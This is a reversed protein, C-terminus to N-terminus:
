KCSLMTGWEMIPFFTNNYFAVYDLFDLIKNFIILRLKLFYSHTAIKHKVITDWTTLFLCFCFSTLIWLVHPIWNTSRQRKQNKIVWVHICLQWVCNKKERAIGTYWKTGHFFGSILLFSGAVNTTFIYLYVNYLYVGVRGIVEWEHYVCFSHHWCIDDPQTIYSITLWYCHMCPRLGLLLWTGWGGKGNRFNVM